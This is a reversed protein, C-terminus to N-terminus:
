NARIMAGKKIIPGILKAGTIMHKDNTGVVRPGIFVNDEATIYAGTQINVNNGVKCNGDLVANTGILVNDGIKSNERIFVRHGTKFNNGIKVKSYIITGSRILANNGIIVDDKESHGSIVDDQIICDKGITLKCNIRRKIPM